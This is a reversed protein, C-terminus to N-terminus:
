RGDRSEAQRYVSPSEPSRARHLGLWRGRGTRIHPHCSLVLIVTRPTFDHQGACSCPHHQAYHNRKAQLIDSNSITQARLNEQGGCIPLKRCWNRPKAMKARISAHAIEDDKENDQASILRSISEVVEPVVPSLTVNPTQVSLRAERRIVARFCHVRPRSLPTATAARLFEGPHTAMLGHPPLNLCKARAGLHAEISYFPSANPGVRKLVSLKAQQLATAM